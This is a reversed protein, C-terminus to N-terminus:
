ILQILHYQWLLNHICFHQYNLILNIMNIICITRLSVNNWTIDNRNSNISGYTNYINVNSGIDTTNLHFCACESQM